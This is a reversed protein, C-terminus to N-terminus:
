LQKLMGLLAERADKLEAEKHKAVYERALVLPLWEGGMLARSVKAGLAVQKVKGSGPDACYKAPSTVLFERCVLPRIEHIACAGEVLFPCAIGAAFYARDVEKMEGESLKHRRRLKELLGKEELTEVAQDFRELFGVVEGGPLRDLYAALGFAEAPAIPVMQRCCADCGKTCSVKEGEAAVMQEAVNVVADTLGQLVPLLVRVPARGVPLAVSGEVPVGDVTLKVLVNQTAQAM